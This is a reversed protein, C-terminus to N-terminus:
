LPTLKMGLSNLAAVLGSQLDSLTDIGGWDIGLDVITEAVAESIGTVIARTGKLRAAKITKNLHNAVGTDVISVGTIDLIAVAAQHKRIGALLTRTIDGARMSDISGVLPMVIISGQPTDMVPIIPTSLEMLALNQAEIVEQQLREREAVGQQLEATREAVQREVDTYAQQLADEIRKRETIDVFSEILQERGGLTVPTVTKIIPIREGNARLLMREAGDVTQGLDIIPCQGDRDPCIFTHCVHGVIEEQPVGIMEVAAPNVDTIIRTEADIVIIGIQLFNLMTRLREESERLAQEAQKYETIDQSIGFTGAIKGQRDRLPMKVTSVWTERGDPWTENEEKFVPQGFQMVEQEDEIAAQAHEDAFFDFDTKGVIQNPDDLGVWDAMSKSVRIFRSDIDKFYVHEPAHDLFARLLDQAQTMTAATQGLEAKSAELEAIRARAKELEAVLQAKETNLESM